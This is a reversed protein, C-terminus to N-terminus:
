SCAREMFYFTLTPAIKKHDGQVFGVKSWFAVNGLSATELYCIENSFLDLVANMFCKGIGRGQATPVVGFFKIHRHVYSPRNQMLTEHVAILRDEQVDDVGVDIFAKEIVHVDSTTKNGPYIDDALCCVTREPNVLLTGGEKLTESCIREFILGLKEGTPSGHFIWEMVPDARNFASALISSVSRLEEPPLRKCATAAIEYIQGKLNGSLPPAEHTSVDKEGVM